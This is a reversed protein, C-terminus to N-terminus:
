TRTLGSRLELVDQEFASTEELFDTRAGINSNSPRILLNRHLWSTATKMAGGSASPRCGHARFTIVPSNSIATRTSRDCGRSQPLFVTTRKRNFPHSTGVVTITHIHAGQISTSMPYRDTYLLKAKLRVM